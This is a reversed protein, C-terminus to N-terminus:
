REKRDRYLFAVIQARTCPAEPSFHTKDVGSVIGKEVAWKVADAHFAGDPVDVFATGDPKEITSPIEPAPVAGGPDDPPDPNDPEATEITFLGM